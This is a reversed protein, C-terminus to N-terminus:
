KTMLLWVERGLTFLGVAVLVGGLLSVIVRDFRTNPANGPIIDNGHQFKHRFAIVLIGIVLLFIGTIWGRM